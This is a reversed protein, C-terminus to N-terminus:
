WLTRLKDRCAPCCYYVPGSIGEEADRVPMIDLHEKHCKECEELQPEANRLQEDIEAMHKDCFYEYEAGFSDTEGQLRWESVQDCNEHECMHGTMTRVKDGPLGAM